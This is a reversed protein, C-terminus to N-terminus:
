RSARTRRRRATLTILALALPAWSVTVGAASCLAGGGGGGGSSGSGSSGSSSSGSGSGGSGSGSGSGASCFSATTPHEPSHFWAEPIPPIPDASPYTREYRFTRPPASASAISGGSCCALPIRIMTTREVASAPPPPMSEDATARLVADDMELQQLRAIRLHTLWGARLGFGALAGTLVVAQASVTLASEDSADVRTPAMVWTNTIVTGGRPDFQLRHTIPVEDGVWTVVLPQLAVQAGGLDRPHVDLAVFWRDAGVYAAFAADDIESHAFGHEDLWLTLAELTTASIATASYDDGAPIEEYTVMGADGYSVVAADRTATGPRYYDSTAASCGYLSLPLTLLALAGDLVADIGEPARTIYHPDTCQFGLSADETVIVTERVTAAAPASRQSEVTLSGFLGGPGLAIDPRAPVPMILSASGGSAFLRPQVALSVVTGSVAEALSGDWCSPPGSGADRSMAVGADSIGGDSDDPMAADAEGAGADADDAGADSPAREPCRWDVTVNPSVVYFADTEADFAVPARGSDVSPEVVRCIAAARGPVAGVCLCLGGLVCLGLWCGVTRAGM